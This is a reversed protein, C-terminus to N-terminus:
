GAERHMESSGHLDSAAYLLLDAADVGSEPPASHLRYVEVAEFAAVLSEARDAECVGQGGWGYDRGRVEGLLCYVCRRCRRHVGDPSCAYWLPGRGRAVEAAAECFRAARYAVDWVQPAYNGPLARVRGTPTRTSGVPALGLGRRKLLRWGLASPLWLLARGDARRAPEDALWQAALMRAVEPDVRRWGSRRHGNVNVDLVDYATESGHTPVHHLRGTAAASLLALLEPDHEMMRNLSAPAM